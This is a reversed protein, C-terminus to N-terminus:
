QADIGTAFTMVHRPCQTPGACMSSSISTTRRGFPLPGRVLLRVEVVKSPWWENQTSRVNRNSTDTTVIGASPATNVGERDWVVWLSPVADHEGLARDRLVVVVSGADHVYEILRVDVELVEWVSDSGHLVEVVRRLGDGVLLM